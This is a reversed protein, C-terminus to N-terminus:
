KAYGKDIIRLLLRMAEIMDSEDVVDRAPDGNDDYIIAERVKEVLARDLDDMEYRTM